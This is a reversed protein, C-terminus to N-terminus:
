FAVGYAAKVTIAHGGASSDDLMANHHAIIQGAEPQGSGATLHADSEVTVDYGLAPARGCATDVLLPLVLDVARGKAAVPCETKM